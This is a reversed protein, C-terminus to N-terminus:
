PRAQPICKMRGGRPIARQCDEETIFVSTSKIALDGNIYSDMLIDCPYTSMNPSVCMVALSIVWYM